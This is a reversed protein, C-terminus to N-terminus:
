DRQQTHNIARHAEKASKSIEGLLREFESLLNSEDEASLLYSQKGLQHLFIPKGETWGTALRIDDPIEFVLKGGVNNLAVKRKSIM